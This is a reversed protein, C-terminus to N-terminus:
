KKKKMMEVVLRRAFPVLDFANNIDVGFTCGNNSSSSGGYGYYGSRGIYALATIVGYSNMRKITQESSGGWAGDTVFIFAKAKRKSNGLIRLGEQVAGSPNTGGGVGIIRAKNSDANEHKTYITYSQDSFAFVTVDAGIRELARKIIWMTECAQVMQGQMSGSYDVALVVEIDTADNKGDDWVDFVSDIDGGGMARKMNLRGTSQHTHWGPDLDVRIRELEKAFKSMVTLSQPDVQKLRYRTMDLKPTYDGDGKVIQKQRDKTDKQVDENQTAKSLEKKLIDRLISPASHKGSGPSYGKGPTKGEEGGEGEGAGDSDSGEGDESGSGESGADGSGSGDGDDDGSSDGQDGGDGEADEDDGDGSGSGGEDENDEYWEAWEAAEKSEAQSVATGQQDKEGRVMHGFPDGPQQSVQNLLEAFRKVLEYARKENAKHPFYLLRYEDIIDALEDAIEPKEFRKRFEDRVEQSLYRRGHALIFNTDWSSEEAVCYNMFMTVFYPATAKFMGTMLTEIRQDELINFATMYGGSIVRNRYDTGARPTFMIHSLEHYNVGTLKIIDDVSTVDGIRMANFTVTRGDSWAPAPITDAHDVECEVDQAALVRNVRRFVRAMSDLRERQQEAYNLLAM